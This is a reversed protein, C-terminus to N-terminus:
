GSWDTDPFRFTIVPDSGHMKMKGAALQEGLFFDGLRTRL